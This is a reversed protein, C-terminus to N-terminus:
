PLFVRVGARATRPWGITRLPTRGVDYEVDFLNEVALFAHLRGNVARSVSLDVVTYDGLEFANLDDDFQEGSVRVQLAATVIRPDAWTVGAGFQYTPVQPVRNGEIDPSAVSGRFHSATFVALANLSLTPLLRFDTEIEIGRARIRDSNQRQRTILQPTISLTINAIADDLENLFGTVRASM